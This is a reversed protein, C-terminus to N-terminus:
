EISNIESSSVSRIGLATLFVSFVTAAFIIAPYIIFTKFTDTDFIINKAGMMQFIFGTSLRSVPHSLAVSLLVASIMVIGIRFTQWIIISINKFGVAKLMAIEGREKTIFSKEMLVAVLINILIIIPLLLMAVSHVVDSVTGTCYNVYEGANMVKDDPFLEKIISIRRKIEAANPKDKFRVQVENLGVLKDYSFTQGPYVRINDGMTMMTQYTATIMCEVEENGITLLVTDGISTGLKDAVLYSVAIENKNQPASGELYVYEEPSINIGEVGRTKITINNYKILVGTLTEIFCEAEWNNNKLATKIDDIRHLLKDRGDEVLYKEVAGNECIALDCDAMNIWSLLKRSQLTSSVNLCVMLISIGVFFTFLMILFRKPSSLIDNVAMFFIPRAHSKSLSIVSKKKYREGTTGSRIADVPTFSKIRGTSLFCFALIIGVVAIACLIGYLLRNNNDMVISSSVANLLMSGFPISLFFGIVAGFIAIFMYKILYLSRIRRNTIGIAKMIGIQRYEESLTFGITFRLTIVAIIILAISVVLLIGVIVMELIYTFSFMSRKGNFVITDCDNIANELSAIDDTDIFSIYFLNPELPKAEMFANYDNESILYRANGMMRSGLVADKLTDKVTLIRSINGVTLKVSDGVKAGSNDLDSQRIYTEGDNVHIIENNNSDFYNEIKHSLCSIISATANQNELLSKHGIFERSSLFICEEQKFQQIGEANKVADKVMVSGGNREFTVYDSVGAKDFFSDLSGTISILNNVSSSIFMVSLIVFLLIIINMTKKRKLDRKLIDFIM